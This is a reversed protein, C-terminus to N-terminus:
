DNWNGSQKGTLKEIKLKLIVIRQLYKEEYQNEFKGYHAMIINLGNQIDERAQLIEVPGYGIVSRYKESWECSLTNKILEHAYEIEFCVRNNIKLMDMKKGHPASHFYLCRDRYGYNLPVLYPEDKGNIAIRCIESTSLIEELINNDTIEKDIRRM